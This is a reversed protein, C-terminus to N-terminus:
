HRGATWRETGKRPIDIERQRRYVQVRGDLRCTGEWGRGRACSKRRDQLGECSTDRSGRGTQRNKTSNRKSGYVHLVVCPCKPERLVAQTRDSCEVSCSSPAPECRALRMAASPLGGRQRADRVRSPAHGDWIVLEITNCLSSGGVRVECRARWGMMEKRWRERRERGRGGGLGGGGGRGRSIWRGSCGVRGGRGRAGRMASGFTAGCAGRWRRM